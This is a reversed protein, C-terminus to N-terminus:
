SRWVKRTSDPLKRWRSLAMTVNERQTKLKSLCVHQLTLENCSDLSLDHTQSTSFYTTTTPCSAAEAMSPYPM